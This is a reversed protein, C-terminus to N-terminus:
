LVVVLSGVVDCEGLNEEVPEGEVVELRREVLSQLERRHLLSVRNM